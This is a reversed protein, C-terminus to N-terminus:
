GDVLTSLTFEVVIGLLRADVTCTDGGDAAKRYIELDLWEGAAPSGAVTIASSWDSIMVDGTATVGDTVEQATGFATDRADDNAQAQARLGFIVNGTNTATWVYRWRITGENWMPPARFGIQAYEETAADFDLVRSMVKNTTTEADAEAAGSTTRPIMAGAPIPVEITRGTGLTALVTAADADDLLTRAFATLDALAATGSGTFYPAKDAASTLGALAALEADGYAEALTGKTVWGDNAANRQKLFGSTTDAWFMYAITTAPATAGSSLGFIAALAANIDARVNAGTDNAIVQDHQSM